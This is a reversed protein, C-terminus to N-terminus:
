DNLLYPNYPIGYKSHGSTATEALAGPETYGCCESLCFISHHMYASPIATTEQLMQLFSIKALLLFCRPICNLPRPNMCLGNRKHQNLTVNEKDDITKTTFFAQQIQQELHAQCWTFSAHSTSRGHHEQIARQKLSKLGQERGKAGQALRALVISRVVLLPAHMQCHNDVKYAAPSQAKSRQAFVVDVANQTNLTGSALMSFTDM